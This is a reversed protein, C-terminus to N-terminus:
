GTQPDGGLWVCMACRLAKRSTGFCGLYTRERLRTKCIMLGGDDGMMWEGSAMNEQKVVVTSRSTGTVESEM